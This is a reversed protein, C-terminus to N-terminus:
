GRVPRWRRTRARDRCDARHRRRHDVYAQYTRMFNLGRGSCWKRKGAGVCVVRQVIRTAGPVDYKQLRIGAAQARGPTPCRRNARVNKIPIATGIDPADAWLQLAFRCDRRRMTGAWRFTQMQTGPPANITVLAIPEASSAVTM